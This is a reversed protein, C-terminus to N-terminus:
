AATEYRQSALWDTAAAEGAAIYEARLARSFLGDFAGGALFAPPRIEVIEIRRRGAWGLADLAAVRQERHPLAHELRELADNVAHAERLDRFLREHILMDALHTALSLGRFELVDDLVRPFPTIVFVRSVDRAGGIAHKLPANNVCGGDMCPLTRGAVNADVPLFAGPFASSACVSTFLEELQAESDFASGDFQFVHEFTTAPKNAVLALSGAANTTVLRLDVPHRGKVPRIHRALLARLNKSTSLGALTAVGRLSVDFADYTADRLWLEELEVGAMAVTGGRVASALYAANLSGSSAAVIRRTDLGIGADSATLVKLAGATFAGKAVGGAFVFADHGGRSARDVADGGRDRRTDPVPDLSELGTNAANNTVTRSRLEGLNM